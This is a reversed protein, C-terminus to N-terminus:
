FDNRYDSTVKIVGWGTVTFGQEKKNMWRDNDIVDAKQARKSYDIPKNLFILAIDCAFPIEKNYEEHSDIRNVSHISANHDYLFRSGTFKLVCKYCLKLVKFENFLNM